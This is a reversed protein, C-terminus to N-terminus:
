GAEALSLDLPKGKASGYPAPPHFDIVSLGAGHPASLRSSSYDALAAHEQVSV